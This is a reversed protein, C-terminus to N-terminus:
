STPARGLALLCTLPLTVADQGVVPRVPLGRIM